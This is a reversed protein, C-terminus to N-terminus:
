QSDRHRFREVSTIAALLSVKLGVGSNIEGQRRVPLFFSLRGM